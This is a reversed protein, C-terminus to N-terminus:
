HDAAHVRAAELQAQPYRALVRTLVSQLSQWAPATVVNVIPAAQLEGLLRAELELQKEARAIARLALDHDNANYARALISRTIRTLELLRDILDDAQTVERARKARALRAPVHARHRDIASKSLGVRGGIDRVTRGAVIAADIFARQPHDCAYCRLPM